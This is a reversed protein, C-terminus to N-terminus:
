SPSRAKEEALHDSLALLRALQFTSVSRTCVEPGDLRYRFTVHELVVDGRIAPLAARGSSFTPEAPTNLIDGLRSVSIRAQHFDQWMQALRLM